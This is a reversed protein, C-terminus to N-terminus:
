SVIHSLIIVIQTFTNTKLTGFNKQLKVTGKSSYYSISEVLDILINLSVVEHVSEKVLVIM